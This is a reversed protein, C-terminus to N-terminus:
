APISSTAAPRSGAPLPLSAARRPEGQALSARPAAPSRPRPSRRPWPRWRSTSSPPFGHRWCACSPRPWSTRASRAAPGANAPGGSLEVTLDLLSATALRSSRTSISATTSCGEPGAARLVRRQGRRRHAPVARGAASAPRAPQRPGGLVRGRSRATADVKRTALSGRSGSARPRSSQRARWAALGSQWLDRAAPRRRGAAGARRPPRRWRAQPRAGAQLNAAGAASRWLERALRRARRLQRAAGEQRPLARGASPRAPGSEGARRDPRDADAWKGRRQLAFLQRYRAIDASTLPGRLEDAQQRDAFSPRSIPSRSLRRSPRPAAAWSCLPPSCSRWRRRQARLPAARCRGSLRWQRRATAAASLLDRWVLRKQAPQRLLYAPHFTIAAPIPPGDAPQYTYPRGRLKTVGETVELLGRAASGGLFLLREPRMLEIQRELFPQCVAIETATPPRNGPPRWFIINTIWVTRRDLGIAALMRDLLQGSPGVFPKGLRDEEAGPAEGILM